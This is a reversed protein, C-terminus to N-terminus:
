VAAAVIIISDAGAAVIFEFMDRIKQISASQCSRATKIGLGFAQLGYGGTRATCDEVPRILVRRAVVDNVDVAGAGGIHTCGIIIQVPEFTVSSHGTGISVICGSVDGVINLATTGFVGVGVWADLRHSGGKSVCIKVIQAAVHSHPM